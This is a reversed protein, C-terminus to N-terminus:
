ACKSQQVGWAGLVNHKGGRSKRELRKVRNVLLGVCLPGIITCLTIAWTVILFLESPREPAGAQGSFIGTSEALASILFGIEGRAVMACGLICAPYTSIPMEPDPSANNTPSDTSQTEAMAAREPTNHSPDTPQTGSAAQENSPRPVDQTCQAGPTVISVEHGSRSLTRVLRQLSRLPSVFSLLWVGCILKGLIMLLTYVVGKWVIPGSFMQSIPVSFGISAFFFPSLIISVAKSYYHEYIETGSNRVSEDPLQRQGSAPPGALVGSETAQNSKPENTQKTPPEHQKEQATHTPVHPVESDWWSISAGAVYASLLGSTGAYTGVIVLGLLCGTHITLSTQPLRLLRDLSSGPSKIRAANLHLTGPRILFRCLLPLLVTLGLSVFVPRIVTVPEFNGASGSLNSVVQVMILGVVDDMMAASTLVVGMRTTVLGSTGLVTFTTGLSTSCLAAGATFAQLPSAGLMSALAFSFAMPLAIGTIAVATSLLLNAKLSRFDTSLGGEYVVLILGLYGLQVISHEMEESLWGAGPTGWAIGLFVQGILGCYVLKDLGYNIANLLILFGSLIIITTISPEHYPLSSPTAM